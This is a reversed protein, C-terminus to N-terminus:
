TALCNKRVEKKEFFNPQKAAGKEVHLGVPTTVKGIIAEIEITVKTSDFGEKAVWLNLGSAEIGIISAEGEVVTYHSAYVPVSNDWSFDTWDTTIEVIEKVLYLDVANNTDEQAKVFSITSFYIVILLLFFRKRM